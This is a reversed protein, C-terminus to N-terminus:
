GSVVPIGCSKMTEVARDRIVRVRRETIVNGSEGKVETQQKGEVYLQRMVCADLGDLKSFGDEFRSIIEKDAAIQTYKIKAVELLIGRELNSKAEKAKRELVEADRTNKRVRRLAPRYERCLGVVAAKEEKTM